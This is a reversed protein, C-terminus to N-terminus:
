VALQMGYYVWNRILQDGISEILMADFGNFVSFHAYYRVETRGARHSPRGVMCKIPQINLQGYYIVVDNSILKILSFMANTRVPSRAVESSFLVM